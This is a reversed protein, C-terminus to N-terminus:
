VKISKKTKGIVLSEKKDEKGVPDPPYVAEYIDQRYKEAVDTTLGLAIITKNVVENFIDDMMSNHGFIIKKCQINSAQLRNFEEELRLETLHHKLNEIRKQRADNSEKNM